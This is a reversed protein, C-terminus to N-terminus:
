TRKTSGTHFSGCQHWEFVECLSKSYRNHQPARWLGSCSAFRNCIQCSKTCQFCRSLICMIKWPIAHLLILCKVGWTQGRGTSNPSILVMSDCSLSNIQPEQEYWRTADGQCDGCCRVSCTQSSHLLESNFPVGLIWIADGPIFDACVCTRWHIICNAYFKLDAAAQYPKWANYKWIHPIITLYILRCEQLGAETKISRLTSNCM